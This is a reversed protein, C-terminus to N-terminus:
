AVKRILPDNYTGNRAEDKPYYKSTLTNLAGLRTPLYSEM